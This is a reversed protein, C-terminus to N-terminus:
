GLCGVGRGRGNEGGGKRGGSGSRGSQRRARRTKRLRPRSWRGVDTTSLLDLVSQVEYRRPGPYHVPKEGERNGESGRRVPDVASGGMQLIGRIPAGADADGVLVMLVSHYSLEENLESVARNSKLQYFLSALRKSSGAARQDPRQKTPVKYKVAERRAGPRLGSRRRSRGSPSHSPDLSRCIGRKRGIRIGGRPRRAGGGHADSV